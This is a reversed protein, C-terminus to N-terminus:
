YGMVKRMQERHAEYKRDAEEAAAQRALKAQWEPTAEIEAIAANIEQMKDAPIALKGAYHTYLTGNIAQPKPMENIISGCDRGAAEIDIMMECCAVETDYGDAWVKRSTILEITVSAPRGTSLAWEIKRTMAMTEDKGKGTMREVVDIIPMEAVSDVGFIAIKGNNGFDM